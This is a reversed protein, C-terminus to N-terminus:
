QRPRVMGNLSMEDAFAVQRSGNTERQDLVSPAHQEHAGAIEDLAQLDRAALEREFARESLEVFIVEQDEVVDDVDAVILRFGTYQELENSAAVLPAGHQDSGILWEAVPAFDKWILSHRQGGDVADDMVGDDELHVHFAVAAAGGEIALATGAPGRGVRCDFLLASQVIRFKEYALAENAFRM